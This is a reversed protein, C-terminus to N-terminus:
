GGPRPRAIGPVPSAGSAVDAGRETLTALMPGSGGGIRQTVLLGQENLWALEVRVGAMGLAIGQQQLASRLLVDTSTYEAAQVLVRLMQLRAEERVREAFSLPPHHLDHM